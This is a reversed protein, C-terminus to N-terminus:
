EEGSIVISLNSPKLMEEQKGLYPSHRIGFSPAPNTRKSYMFKKECYTNPSPTKEAKERKFPEGFSYAPKTRKVFNFNPDHEGPGPQYQTTLERAACGLTYAPPKKFPMTPCYMNPPPTWMDWAQYPPKAAPRMTYAPPRKYAVQTKPAYRDPGPAKGKDSIPELRPSVVGHRIRYPGKKSHGSIDLVPAKPTLLSKQFNVPTIHGFTYAPARVIKSYGNGGSKRKPKTM